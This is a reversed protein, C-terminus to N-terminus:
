PTALPASSGTVSASPASRHDCRLRAVTRPPMPAACSSPLTSPGSYPTSHTQSNPEHVAIKQTLTGSAIMAMTSTWNLTGACWCSGSRGLTSTTPPASSATAKPRSTTPRYLGSGM